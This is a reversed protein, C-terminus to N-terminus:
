PVRTLDSFPTPQTKGWRTIVMRCRLLWSYTVIPVHNIIGIHGGLFWISSLTNFLKQTKGLMRM